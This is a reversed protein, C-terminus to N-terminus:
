HAWSLFSGTGKKDGSVGTDLAPCARNLVFCFLIECSLSILDPMVTDVTMGACGPDPDPAPGLFGTSYRNWKTMGACAPIWDISPEM